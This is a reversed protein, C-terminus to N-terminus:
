ESLSKIFHKSATKYENKNINIPEVYLVTQKNQMIPRCWEGLEITAFAPPFSGETTKVVDVGTLEKLADIACIGKTERLNKMWLLRGDNGAHSLGAAALAGIIGTKRGTLGKLYIHHTAAIDYAEAETLVETKARHGWQEICTADKFPLRIICLGVDSGDAAHTELYRKCTALLVDYGKLLIGRLSASSNHSTFPIDKHVYLQHRTIHSTDFIGEDRLHSSLMRVIYGTGRSDLNDTDDVGIILNIQSMFQIEIRM